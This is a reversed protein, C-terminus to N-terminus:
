AYSAIRVNKAERGQMTNVGLGTKFVWQIHVPVLHRMSWVTGSVIDKFLRVATFYDQALGKLQDIAPQTIHYMSFISNGDRLKIAIFVIFLLKMLLQPDDSDQKTTNMLFM